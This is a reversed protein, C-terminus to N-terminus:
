RPNAVRTKMWRSFRRKSPSSANPSVELKWERQPKPGLELNLNFLRGRRSLLVDVKAGEGLTKLLEDVEGLNRTRYGDLAVVEDGPAVGASHAPAGEEVHQVMVADGARLTWGAWGTKPYGESHKPPKSSKWRLGMWNLALAHELPATGDVFKAFFTDLSRGALETALARFDETTYGNESYRVYAENMLTDLSVRGNTMERLTMDLLFGVAAGKRYYNTM